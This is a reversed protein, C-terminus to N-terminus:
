LSIDSLAKGGRNKRSNWFLRVGKTGFFQGGSNWLSRAWCYLKITKDRHWSKM